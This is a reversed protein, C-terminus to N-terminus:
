KYRVRGQLRQASKAASSMERQTVLGRSWVSNRLLATFIDVKCFDATSIDTEVSTAGCCLGAFSFVLPVLRKEIALKTRKTEDSYLIRKEMMKMRLRTPMTIKKHRHHIYPAGFWDVHARAADILRATEM